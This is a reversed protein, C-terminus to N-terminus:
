NWEGELIFAAWYFPDKWQTNTFLEVQAARLAAAPTLNREFLGRYFETMLASTAADDVKWLSAIVRRAGAYMFGRVLGVLGEGVIDKGLATSCASLVVLDVPLHLNYIDNLRLYGDEAKGDRDFLSLVIGSLEPHRDNVVGHTALHIIRYRALDPSGAAARNADFGLRIDVGPALAQIGRAERQSGLLRPIGAGFGPLDRLARSAPEATTRDAEPASARAAKSAAVVMRPDDAEFVPDAFVAIPKSWENTQKWYDRVLALTSASPLSVVEHDVVLPVPPGAKRGPQPLAPFPLLQLIGDALILVRPRDLHRAVPGLLLQSVALAEQSDRASAATPTPNSLRERYPRVRREIEARGPLTYAAIRDSTVAWVYSRNMGLFYQLLVSDRDVIRTQVERATLPQPNTLAAYRPSESRIQSEVDQSASTLSDIEATLSKAEASDKPVQTLRQAKANLAGRISRERELLAPAVGERIGGRAQALGDLFARARARESADFAQVDYGRTPERDHMRMLVDIELEHRDRVSAILSARLDLSGVNTRVSEVLELSGRVLKLAEGHNQRDREVKALNYLTV